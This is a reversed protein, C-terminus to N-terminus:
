LKMEEEFIKEMFKTQEEDMSVNNQLKYFEAFLQLPTKHEVDSAATKSEINEMTRRNQFELKMINPYYYRLRALPDFIQEEDTLIALIYNDSGGSEKAVDMLQNFPGIIKMMDRLPELLIKEIQIKGKEEMNVLVVSKKHLVESFSYKLPSGSYRVTDRGMKQPGHLHGLAVYDFKDFASADVSDLGGIPNVESECSEPLKGLATVFQHSVIINRQSEDIEENGIIAEVAQQTNQIELDPFYARVMAPKIFPLLYINVEGYEDKLTHKELKGNYSGAININVEELLSRGFSLREQSDHNGSIIYLGIGKNGLITIFRDFVQVAEGSPISKDYVDGAIIVADVHNEEAINVIKELIYSQDELMSIENVRKGIHLDGIHLFKM